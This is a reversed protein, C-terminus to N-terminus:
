NKVQESYADIDLVDEEIEKDYRAYREQQEVMETVEPSHDMSIKKRAIPLVGEPKGEL